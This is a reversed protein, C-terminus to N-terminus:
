FYRWFIKILRPEYQNEGKLIIKLIFYPKIVSWISNVSNEIMEIYNKLKLNEKFVKIFQRGLVYNEDIRNISNNWIEYENESIGGSVNKLSQNPVPVSKESNANKLIESLFDDFEERTYGSCISSCYDFMEQNTECQAFKEKYEPNAIIKKMLEMLQANIM